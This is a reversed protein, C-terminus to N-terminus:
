PDSSVSPMSNIRSSWSAMFEARDIRRLIRVIDRTISLSGRLSTQPQGSMTIYSRELWALAQDNEGAYLYMGGCWGDPMMAGFDVKGSHHFQSSDNM